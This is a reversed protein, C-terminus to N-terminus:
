DSLDDLEDEVDGAGASAAAAALGGMVAHAHRQHSQTQTRHKVRDIEAKLERVDAAHQQQQHHDDVGADPDNHLPTRLRSQAERLAAAHERQIRERDMRARDLERQLRKREEALEAEKKGAGLCQRALAEARAEACRARAVAAGVCRREEECKRELQAVAGGLEACRQELEEVRAVGRGVQSRLDAVVRAHVAHINERETQAQAHERARLQALNHLDHTLRTQTTTLHTIKQSLQTSTDSHSQHLSQLAATHATTLAHKSELLRQHAHTLDTFKTATALHSEKTEELEREANRLRRFADDSREAALQREKEFRHEERLLKQHLSGVAVSREREAARLRANVDELCCAMREAEEPVHRTCKELESEAARKDRIAREAQHTLHACRQELAALEATQRQHESQFQLRMTAIEQEARERAKAPIELLRDARRQLEAQHQQERILAKEYELKAEQAIETQKLVESAADAERSELLLIRSELTKSISLLEDAEARLTTHATTQATCKAKLEDREYETTKLNDLLDRERAAVLQSERVHKQYRSTVEELSSKLDGVMDQLGKSDGSVRRLEARLKDVEINADVLERECQKTERIASEARDLAHVLDARLKANQQQLDTLQSVQADRQVLQERLEDMEAERAIAQAMLADNEGILVDVRENAEKWEEPTIRAAADRRSRTNDDELLKLKERLDRVDRDHSDRAQQTARTADALRHHLDNNDTELRRARAQLEVYAAHADADALTSRPHHNHIPPPPAPPPPSALAPPPPPPPPSAPKVNEKMVKRGEEDEVPQQQLQQIQGRALALRQTNFSMGDDGSDDGGGKIRPPFTNQRTHSPIQLDAPDPQPSPSFGPLINNSDINDIHSSKLVTERLLRARDNRTLLM